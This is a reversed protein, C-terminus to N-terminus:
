SKHIFVIEHREKSFKINQIEFSSPVVCRGTHMYLLCRLSLLEFGLGLDGCVGGGDRGLDEEDWYFAVALGIREATGAVYRPTM